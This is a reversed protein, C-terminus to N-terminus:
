RKTGFGGADPPPLHAPTPGSGLRLLSRDADPYGRVAAARPDLVPAALSAAELIRALCAVFCSPGSRPRTQSDERLLSLGKPLSQDHQLVARCSQATPLASSRGIASQPSKGRGRSSTSSPAPTMAATPWAIERHPIISGDIFPTSDPSREALTEFVQVWVGAKGWPRLLKHPGYREPLTRSPSGTGLMWFIGNLVRRDDVRQDDVRAGRERSNPLSPRILGM